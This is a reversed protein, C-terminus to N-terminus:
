NQDKTGSFTGGMGGMAWTGEFAMGSMVMEVVLSGDPGSATITMTQGAVEVGSIPIAPMVDSTIRGEYGDGNKEIMMSGSVVMGEANASYMYTGVPDLPPPGSPGSACAALIATLGLTVTMRKM